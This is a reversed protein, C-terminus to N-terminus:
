PFDLRVRSVQWLRDGVKLRGDTDAVSGTTIVRIYIGDGGSPRALSLGLSGSLPKELIVTISVTSSMQLM